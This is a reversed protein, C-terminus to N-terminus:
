KQIYLGIEEGYRALRDVKKQMNKPAKTIFAIDDAFDLGEFTDM